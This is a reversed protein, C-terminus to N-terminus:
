EIEGASLPKDVETSIEEEPKIMGLQEKLLGMDKGTYKKVEKLLGDLAEQRKAFLKQAAEMKKVLRFIRNNREGTNTAFDTKELVELDDKSSGFHKAIDQDAETLWKAEMKISKERAERMTIKQQGPGEMGM